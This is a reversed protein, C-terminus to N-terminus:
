PNKRDHRIAKDIAGIKTWAIHAKDNRRAAIHRHRWLGRPDREYCFCSEVYSDPLRLWALRDADTIKNKM